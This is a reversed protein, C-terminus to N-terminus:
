HMVGWCFFSFSFARRRRGLLPEHAVSLGLEGNAAAQVIFTLLVGLESFLGDSWNCNWFCLRGFL